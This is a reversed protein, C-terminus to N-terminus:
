HTPGTIFRYLYPASIIWCCLTIALMLANIKKHPGTILVWVAIITAVFPGFARITVLPGQITEMLDRLLIGTPCRVRLHALHYLHSFGYIVLLFPTIFERASLDSAKKSTRRNDRTTKPQV